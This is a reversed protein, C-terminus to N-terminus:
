GRRTGGGEDGGGPIGRALPHDEGLEPEWRWGKGEVGRWSGHHSSTM